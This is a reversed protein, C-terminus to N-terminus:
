RGADGGNGPSPLAELGMSSPNTNERLQHGAAGRSCPQTRPIHVHTVFPMQPRSVDRSSSAPAPHLGAHSTHM